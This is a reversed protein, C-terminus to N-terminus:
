QAGGRLRREHEGIRRLERVAERRRDQSSGNRAQWALQDKRAKSTV